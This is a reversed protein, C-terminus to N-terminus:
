QITSLSNIQKHGAIM